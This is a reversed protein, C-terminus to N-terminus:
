GMKKFQLYWMEVPNDFDFKIIKKGLEIWLTEGMPYVVM